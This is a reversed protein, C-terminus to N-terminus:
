ASLVSRFGGPGFDPSRRVRRPPPQYRSGMLRLVDARWLPLVHRQEVTLQMSPSADASELLMTMREPSLAARNLSALVDNASRPPPVFPAAKAMRTTIQKAEEVSMATQCGPVVIM